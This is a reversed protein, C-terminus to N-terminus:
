TTVGICRRSRHGAGLRRILWYQVGISMIVSAAAGQVVDLRLQIPPNMGKALGYFDNSSSSSHCAFACPAQALYTTQSQGQIRVPLGGNNTCYWPNSSSVNPM